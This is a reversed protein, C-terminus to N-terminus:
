RRKNETLRGGDLTLKVTVPKSPFNAADEPKRELAPLSISTRGTRADHRATAELTHVARWGKGGIPIVDVLGYHEQKAAAGREHEFLALYQTHNNGGGFAEITFVAAVLERDPGLKLTQTLTADPYGSAHSDRLLEVLRGIQDALAKPPAPPAASAGLACSLALAAFLHRRM